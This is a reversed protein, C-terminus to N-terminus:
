QQIGKRQARRAARQARLQNKYESSKVDRAVPPLNFEADMERLQKYMIDEFELRRQEFEAETLNKDIFFPQGVHCTVRSFPKAVMLSDWRRMFFARSASFCVPILPAGTKQALYLAGPHVRLSPGSPGDPSICMSYDGRQLVAISDRLVAVGGRSGSGYVARLGFLREVKAMLRGDAHQSAIVYSRMRGICIIPSLMMMRGHWFMFIAPKDRYKKYTEYNTIKIRSTFYVVWIPLAIIAAIVWQVPPFHFIANFFKKWIKRLVQKM